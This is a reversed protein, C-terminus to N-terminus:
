LRFEVGREDCAHVTVTGSRVASAGRHTRYIRACFGGPGCQKEHHFDDDTCYVMVPNTTSRAIYRTGTNMVM